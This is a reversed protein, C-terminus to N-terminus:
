SNTGTPVIRDGNQRSLEERQRNMRNVTVQQEFYNLVYECEAIRARLADDSLDKCDGERQGQPKCLAQIAVSGRQAIMPKVVQTWGPTFLTQSLWDAQQDSIM